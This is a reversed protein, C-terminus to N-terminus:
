LNLEKMFREKIEEPSLDINPAASNGAEVNYNIFSCKNYMNNSMWLYM